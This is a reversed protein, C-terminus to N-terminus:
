RADDLDFTLSAWLSEWDADVGDPAPLMHVANLMWEGAHPLPLTVRGEADTREEVLGDEVPDHHAAVLVGEVPHGEHLLRFSLVEGARQTYPDRDPVLELTLGVPQTALSTHEGDAAAAAPGHDHAGDHTFSIHTADSAPSAHVIAKACRSYVERGPADQEGRALRTAVVHELGEHRLYDEFHAADLELATRAGRYALVQTGSERIRAWGAPARGDRGVIPTRGAVDVLVFEVLHGPDRALSEGEFHDGVLLEVAIPEGASPRYSAPRAWFDHAFLPACSVFAWAALTRRCSRSVSM